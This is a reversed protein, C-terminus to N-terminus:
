REGVVRRVARQIRAQLAPDRQADSSQKCAVLVDRLADCAATCSPCGRVHGELEACATADLEHERNRSWAEAIDPCTPGRAPLVLGLAPAVAEKLAARARHLRSKLAAEGIGLAEAAEASSLGEVDRLHLVARYDEPLEDLARSVIASAEGAEALQAPDPVLSPERALPADDVPPQNKLGRRRRGCATRTLTFVWTPLSSRGEFAGLNTTVALLSDQVVDDADTPNKCMRTAFRLVMPALETLLENMAKRDGAQAREILADV